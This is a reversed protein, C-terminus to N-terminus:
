FPHHGDNNAGQTVIGSSNAHARGTTPTESLRSNKAYSLRELTGVHSAFLRTRERDISHGFHKGGAGLRDLIADKRVNVSDFFVESVWSTSLVWKRSSKSARFGSNGNELDYTQPLDTQVSPRRIALAFDAVMWCLTINRGPQQGRREVHPLVICEVGRGNTYTRM